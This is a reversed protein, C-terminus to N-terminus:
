MREQLATIEGRIADGRSPDHALLEGAPTRAEWELTEPNLEVDSAREVRIDGLERLPLQDNWLAKVNGDADVILVWEQSM